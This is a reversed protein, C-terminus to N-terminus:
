RARNTAHEPVDTVRPPLLGYSELYDRLEPTTLKVIDRPLEDIVRGPKHLATTVDRLMGLMRPSACLVVRDPNSDSAMRGLEVAVAAAFAQDYHDLHADRHDDVSFQKPGVRSIGPRTDSFLESPRLRRAPNIMDSQEIFQEDVGSDHSSRQFTFLRARSADVVAICAKYM